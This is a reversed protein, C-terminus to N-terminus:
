ILGASIVIILLYCSLLIYFPWIRTLSILILLSNIKWDEGLISFHYYLPRKFFALSVLFFLSLSFSYFLFSV